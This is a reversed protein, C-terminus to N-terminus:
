MCDPHPSLNSPIVAMLKTEVMAMRDEVPEQSDEHVDKHCLPEPKEEQSEHDSNPESAEASDGTVADDPDNLEEKTLAKRPKQPTRKKRTRKKQTEPADKIQLPVSKVPRAYKGQFLDTDEGSLNEQKEPTKLSEEDESEKTKAM